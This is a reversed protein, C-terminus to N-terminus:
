LRSFKFHEFFLYGERIDKNSAFWKRASISIVKILTHPLSALWSCFMHGTWLSITATIKKKKVTANCTATLSETSPWLRKPPVWQRWKPCLICPHSTGGYHVCKYVLNWPTMHWIVRIKYTFYIQWRFAEMGWGWISYTSPVVQVSCGAWSCIILALLITPSYVTILLVLSPILVVDRTCEPPSGALSHFNRFGYLLVM